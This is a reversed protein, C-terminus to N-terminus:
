YYNSNFPKQSFNCWLQNIKITNTEKHSLPFSQTDPVRYCSVGQVRMFAPKKSKSLRDFNPLPIYRWAGHHHPM